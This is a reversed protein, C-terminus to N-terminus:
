DLVVEYIYPCYKGTIFFTNTEKNYAIGNLVAEPDSMFLSSCTLDSADYEAEVQGSEPNIKYIKNDGYVNAYIKGDVYELENIRMLASNQYKVKVTKVTKFTMPDRFYLINSGDSMIFNSGDNTLGWGESEYLFNINKDKFSELDYAHAEGRRYSLITIYDNFVTMGEAFFKPLDKQKLVEGTELNIKKLASLNDRGSSEYLFGDHIELGQTYTRDGEHPIFKLVRVKSKKIQQQPKPQTHHRVPPDKKKKKNCNYTGFIITLLFIGSFLIKYVRQM